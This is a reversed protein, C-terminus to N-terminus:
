PRRPVMPRHMTWEYDHGREFQLLGIQGSHYVWHWELHMLVGLVTTGDDLISADLDTMTALQPNTIEDAVRRIPAILEDASKAPAPDADFASLADSTLARDLADATHPSGLRGMWSAEGWALHRALRAVSLKTDGAVYNLADIPLGGIQDVVRERLEAIWAAHFAVDPNAFGEIPAISYVRPRGTRHNM